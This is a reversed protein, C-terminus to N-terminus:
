REIASLLDDFLAQEERSLRERDLVDREAHESSECLGLVFTAAKLDGKM